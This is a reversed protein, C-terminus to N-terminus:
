GDNARPHTRTGRSHPHSVWRWEVGDYTAPQYKAAYERSPGVIIVNRCQSKTSPKFTAATYPIHIRKSILSYRDFRSGVRVCIPLFNGLNRLVANEWGNTFICFTTALIEARLLAYTSQSHTGWEGHLIPESTWRQFETICGFQTSNGYISRYLTHLIRFGRRWIYYRKM